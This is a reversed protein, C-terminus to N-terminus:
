AREEMDTIGVIYDSLPTIPVTSKWESEHRFDRYHAFYNQFDSSNVDLGKEDRYYALIDEPMEWKYYSYSYYVPALWEGFDEKLKDFDFEIRYRRVDREPIITLEPNSTLNVYHGWEGPKLYNHNLIEDLRDTFHYLKNSVPHSHTSVIKQEIPELHSLRPLMRIDLPVNWLEKYDFSSIPYKYSTNDKRRGTRFSM